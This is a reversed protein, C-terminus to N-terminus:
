EPAGISGSRSGTWSGVGLEGAPTLSAVRQDRQFVIRVSRGKDRDDTVNSFGSYSLLSRAAADYELDLAPVILALLGNDIKVRLRLAGSQTPEGSREIRFPIVQLRDPVAFLCRLVKGAALDSWRSAIYDNFGPGIIVDRGPKVAVSKTERRGDVLRTMHITDGDRRATLEWGFRLDRMLYAPAGPDEGYHAEMSAIPQAAADVYTTHASAKRGDVFTYRHREQYAFRGEDDFADGVVDFARAPVPAFALGLLLLALPRFGHRGQANPAVARVPALRPTPQAASIALRALVFILVAAVPAAALWGLVAHLGAAGFGGFLALPDTRLTSGLAEVSLSM